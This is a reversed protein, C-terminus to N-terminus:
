QAATEENQVGGEIRAALSAEMCLAIVSKDTERLYATEGVGTVAAQDKLSATVATM